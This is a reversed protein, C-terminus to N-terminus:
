PMLRNARYFRHPLTASEPDVFELDGGPDATLTTLVTWTQLNSSAQIEYSGGALGHLAIRFTGDALRGGSIRSEGSSLTIPGAAFLTVASSGNTLIVGRPTPSNEFGVSTLTGNAATNTVNFYAHGLEEHAGPPISQGTPLTMSVGLRGSSVQTTNVTLAASSMVGSNTFRPNSLLAPDFALTFRVLSEDGLAQVDIPVVAVSGIQATIEDAFVVRPNDLVILIAPTSTVMGYANSVVVSYDGNDTPLVKQVRLQSTTTGTYRTNTILNTGSHRWQYSLPVSGAATVNFAVTSGAIANSGQPQSTISPQSPGAWNLTAIGSGSAGARGDVAIVYTTNSVATFNVRSIPIGVALNDNAAITTLANVANGTYVAM